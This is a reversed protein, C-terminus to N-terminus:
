LKNSRILNKADKVKQKADEIAKEKTDGYGSIGTFSGRYNLDVEWRKNDYYYVPNGIEIM